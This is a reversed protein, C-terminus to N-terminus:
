GGFRFDALLQGVLSAGMARVGISTSRHSGLIFDGAVAHVQLALDVARRHVAGHGLELRLRLAGLDVAAVGRGRGPPREPEKDPTSMRKARLHNRGGSRVSSSIAPSWEARCGSEPLVGM